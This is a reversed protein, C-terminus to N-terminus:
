AARTGRNKNPPPPAQQLFCRQRELKAHDGPLVLSPLQYIEKSNSKLQNFLLFLEIYNM